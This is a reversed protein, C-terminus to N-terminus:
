TFMEDLERYVAILQPEVKLYRKLMLRAYRAPTVGHRQARDKIVAIVAPELRLTFPEKSELQLSQQTPYQYSHHHTGGEFHNLM